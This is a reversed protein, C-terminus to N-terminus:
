SRESEWSSSSSNKKLSKPPPKLYDIDYDLKIGKYGKKYDKDFVQIDKLLQKAMELDDEHAEGEEEELNFSFLRNKIDAYASEYWQM